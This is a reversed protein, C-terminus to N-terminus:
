GGGGPERTGAAGTGRQPALRRYLTARSLGLARAAVDVRGGADRVAQHILETELAKLSRAPAAGPAGEANARQAAVRLRLGSWLPLLRAEGQQALDFLSQWPVAFLDGAHPAAAAPVQLAPLMDRAARNSGVVQGEGDLCLLGQADDGGGVGFAPPWALHLRLQHPRALLLAQEIRQASQAVLHKLEPREPVDVGTVDLMGLCEGGPGFLPAGACSYVSTHRFFHEGRHLWVPVREALAAGIASTGISAESLDVGVRAIAHTHPEGHDVAGGTAVVIGQADVLVAFYRIPALLAGLRDLESRAAAVLRTQAQEAHRAANAPVPGFVVEEDPRRGQALCRRWSQLIWARDYWASALLATLEGGGALVSQRALAIQQLRPDDHM